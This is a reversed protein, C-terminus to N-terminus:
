PIVPGPGDGLPLDDSFDEGDEVVGPPPIPLQARPLVGFDIALLPSLFSAWEAWMNWKWCWFCCTM